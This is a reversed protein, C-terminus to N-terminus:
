FTPFKAPVVTVIRCLSKGSQWPVLTLGDPRKRDIRFLGTPKKTVPTGASAICRAVLYKLAHYRASRGPAKQCVFSHLRYTGDRDSHDLSATERVRVAKALRSKEAGVTQLQCGSLTTLKSVKAVKLSFDLRRRQMMHFTRAM